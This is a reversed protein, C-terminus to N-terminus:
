IVGLFGLADVFMAVLLILVASVILWRVAKVGFWDGENLFGRYTKYIYVCMSIMAVMLVCGMWNDCTMKSLESM